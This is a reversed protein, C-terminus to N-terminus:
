CEGKNTTITRVNDDDDRHLYMVGCARAPISVGVNASGLDMETDGELNWDPLLFVDTFSSAMSAGSYDGDLM